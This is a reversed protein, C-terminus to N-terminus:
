PQCGPADTTGGTIPDDCPVCMHGPGCPSKDFSIELFIKLCQPLCVGQYGGLILSNGQCPTGAYDPDQMADPVCLNGKAEGKCKALSSELGDPILEPGICHGEGGCCSIYESEGSCEEVPGVDCGQDCVESTLGTFPDCCPSCREYSECIDVPLSEALAGVDPLVINMCRGEMGNISTCTAPVFFGASAIMPDPVCFGEDCTALKDQLHPEVLADPVCHAHEGCPQFAGPDVVDGTPPNECSYGAAEAEREGQGDQPLESEPLENVERVHEPDCELGDGCAGSDVGTLPDICPACREGVDCNDVPLLSAFQGVKPICTSLCVGEAGGISECSRPWFGSDEQISTIIGKPVCASGDDCVSVQSQLGETLAEMPVCSGTGECCDPLQGYADFDPCVGPEAARVPTDDVRVDEAPPTLAPSPESAQSDAGQAQNVQDAEPEETAEATVHETRALEASSDVPFREVSDGALPGQKPGDELGECGWGGHLCLGVMVVVVRARGLKFSM